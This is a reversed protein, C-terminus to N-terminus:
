RKEHSFFGQITVYGAAALLPAGLLAAAAVARM